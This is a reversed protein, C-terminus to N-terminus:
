EMYKINKRYEKLIRANHADGGEVNASIFVPPVLGKKVIIDVTESLIANLVAAGAVTSSAAVKQGFGEIECVTDGISGCNDLIIDCVEFLRKGSSHRSTVSKSYKVNTLAVVTVGTKKAEIAMEIPVPNRGSVSHIILIDDKQVGASELIIKGFGELRELDTTQTVPRVNLMLGAPLIPNIVALGGTRYFMEQALIGAHSCGFVYINRRDVIAEAMKDATLQMATKQTRLIEDLINNIENFYNDIL